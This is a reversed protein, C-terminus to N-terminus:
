KFFNSLDVYNLKGRMAKGSNTGYYLRKSQYDLVFGLINYPEVGTSELTSLSWKLGLKYLPDDEVSSVASSIIQLRWDEPKEKIKWDPHAFYNTAYIFENKPDIRKSLTPSTELVYAEKGDAITINGSVARPIQSYLTVAEAATKAEELVRRQIFLSAIGETTQSEVSNFSTNHSISVGKENIGSVVGSMGPVSLSLVALKGTKRFIMPLWLSRLNDSNAWDINQGVIMSGTKSRSPMVVFTSGFNKVGVFKLADIMMNGFLMEEFPVESATAMAKIEELADAPIKKALQGSIENVSTTLDPNTGLFSASWGELVTKIVSKLSQGHQRGIESATGVFVSPEVKEIDCIDESGLNVTFQNLVQERFGPSTEVKLYGMFRLCPAEFVVKDSTQSLIKAPVDQGTDRATFYIQVPSDFRGGSIVVPSGPSTFEPSVVLKREEQKKIIEIEGARYPTGKIFFYLLGSESGEPITLLIETNSSDALEFCESSCYLGGIRIGKVLDLRTGVIRVIEGVKVVKPSFSWDSVRNRSVGLLSLTKVESKIGNKFSIYIESSRDGGFGSNFAAEFTCSQGPSLLNPCNNQTLWLGELKLSTASSEGANKLKFLRTSISFVDTDPFQYPNESDIVLNALSPPPPLAVGSLSQTPAPFNAEQELSTTNFTKDAFGSVTDQSYYVRLSDSYKGEVLPRFSVELLCNQNEKLIEPCNHSVDFPSNVEFKLFRAGNGGVNKLTFSKIQTTGAPLIDAYQFSGSSELVLQAPQIYNDRCQRVPFQIPFVDGTDSWAKGELFRYSGAAGQTYGDTVKQNPSFVIARRKGDTGLRFDLSYDFSGEHGVFIEVNNLRDLNDGFLTFYHFADNGSWCTSQSIVKAPGISTKQQLGSKTAFGFTLPFNKEFNSNGYSMNSDTIGEPIQLTISDSLQNLIKGPLKNKIWPRRRPNEQGEGLEIAQGSFNLYSIADLNKGKLTIVQNSELFTTFDFVEPADFFQVERKFTQSRSQFVLEGIEEIFSSDVSILNPNKVVFPTENGGIKLSIIRDLGTGSFELARGGRIAKISISGAIFPPETRNIALTEWTGSGRFEISAFSKPVIFSICDKQISFNRLNIPIQKPCASHYTFELSTQGVKMQSLNELYDGLIYIEEGEEYTENGPTQHFFPLSEYVYVNFSGLILSPRPNKMIKISEVTAISFGGGFLQIPGDSISSPVRVSLSEFSGSGPKVEVRCLSSSFQCPFQVQTVHQLNLGSFTILPPERRDVETPSFKTVIPLPNLGLGKLNTKYNVEQVGSRYSAKFSSSFSKAELPTFTLSASCSAGPALLFPCDHSISFPPSLPPINFDLAPKEGENKVMFPGITSKESIRTDSFFGGGFNFSVSAPMLARRGFGWLSLRIDITAAGKLYSASLTHSVSGERVPAFTVTIPCSEGGKLSVPCSHTISFPSNGQPIHISEASKEGKNKLQFTHSSGVEGLPSILELGDSSKLGTFDLHAPTLPPLGTGSIKRNVSNQGYQLWVDAASLGEQIPSFTVRASCSAGPALSFPCDHSISFPASLSWFKVNQAEQEGKNTIKFLTEPSTEGVPVRGFDFPTSTEFLVM